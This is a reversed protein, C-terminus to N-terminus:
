KVSCFDWDIKYKDNATEEMVKDLLDSMDKLMKEKNTFNKVHIKGKEIMHQRLKPDSYVQYLKEAMDDTDYPDFYLAANGGIEPLSAVNSCVVPKELLMAEAVPMGFGEYLSPNVVALAGSMIANFEENSTYGTFVIRDRIGLKEIVELTQKAQTLLRGSKNKHPGMFVLKFKHDISHKRLLKAFAETLRSHNKSYWFLSAFVFYNNKELGFKNLTQMIQQKDVSPLRAAMQTRIVNIKASNINNFYKLICDKTFNSISILKASYNFNNTFSRKYRLFLDKPYFEPKDLYSIDHIVSIQPIGFNFYFEPTGLSFILDCHKDIFLKNYLMLQKFRYFMDNLKASKSSLFVSFAKEFSLFINSKAYHYLLEHTVATEYIKKISYVCLM